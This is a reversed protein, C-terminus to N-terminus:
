EFMPVPGRQEDQVLEKYLNNGPQNVTATFPPEQPVRIQLQGILKEFEGFTLPKADKMLEYGLEGTIEISATKVDAPSSIGKERLRAELQDTTLRLKKLNQTLITGDKIVPTSKGIFLREVMKFKISLFQTFILFAVLTCLSFITKLLGKESIAHGTTSGIAVITIIELGSMEAVTKKGAIRLLCFGTLLIALTEWIYHM